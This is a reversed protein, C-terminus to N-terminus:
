ANRAGRVPLLAIFSIVLLRVAIGSVGILVMAAVARDLEFSLRSEEILYGLGSQAGVLEAVIVVFWAIGSAKKLGVAIQPMASPIVVYTLLTVRSAGFTRSVEICDLPVQEFGTLTVAYMPFFSAFAVLFIAPADGLGLFFIVFPILAIPPIPRVLELSLGFLAKLPPWLWFGCCTGFAAVSGLTFGALVRMLSAAVHHFASGDEVMGLLATAAELPSPIPKPLVGGTVLAQWALILVVVGVLGNGTAGLWREARLRHLRTAAPPDPTPSISCARPRAPANRRGM